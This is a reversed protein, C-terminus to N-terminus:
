ICGEVFPGSVWLSGSNFMSTGSDDIFGVAKNDVHLKSKPVVQGDIKISKVFLNRDGAKAQGAWLDNAYRLEIKQPNPVASLNFRFPVTHASAAKLEAVISEATIATSETGPIDVQGVPKGDVLVDLRPPGEFSTGAADVELSAISCRAADKTADAIMDAVRRKQSQVWGAIPQLLASRNSTGAKILNVKETPDTKLDYAEISGTTANFIVKRDDERYGFQFGSWPIFFFTKNPRQESFLSHGQWLKPLPLGLIDLITPAIDIIGGVSHAVDDHFLQKNIMILPIHINEEYLASAHVYNGHEGFAEGHDGLIVVLTSDLKGSQKLSDLIQGLAQDGVKLANLYANFKEDDSYHVQSGDAPHPAEKMATFLPSDILYPYHTMATFMVAFFPNEADENVWNIVSQATCLDSNYDFNKWEESSLKFTPINCKQGRYDQIVDLGKNLLFEDVRQFRSDASWFFGTRFGSATLTNSISNLPLDPHSATMGYYSIDNYMSSFLSFISYNTSPTHAYINDFRMSDSSYSKINPTVPYKGGFTEVYRSPVSEMMFVLVNKIPNPSQVKFSSTEAPREGVSAVDLDKAGTNVAFLVPTPSFLASEVFYVIPNAVKAEPLATARVYYGTGVLGAGVCLVLAGLFAARATGGLRLCLGAAVYGLALVLVISLSSFAFDRPNLADNIANKADANQLFDGYVLWQFTFPESLMKVLNINAFGWCLSVLIALYFIVVVVVGFLRSARALFLLLLAAATLSSIFILDYYSSAIGNPISALRGQLTSQPDIIFGRYVGLLVWSFFGTCTILLSPSLLRRSGQSSPQTKLEM